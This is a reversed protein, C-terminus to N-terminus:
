KLLNGEVPTNTPPPSPTNNPVPSNENISFNPDTQSPEGQDPTMQTDIPQDTMPTETPTTTTPVTTVPQSYSLCAFAGTELILYNLCNSSVGPITQQPRYLTQALTNKFPFFVSGTLMLTIVFLPKKM